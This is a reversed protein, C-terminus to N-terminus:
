LTAGIKRLEALAPAKELWLKDFLKAVAAADAVNVPKIPFPAARFQEIIKSENLVLEDNQQALAAKTTRAIIDRDAQPLGQWVRGSVLAAVPM